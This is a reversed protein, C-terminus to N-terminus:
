WQKEMYMDARRYESPLDKPMLVFGNKEYLKRAAQLCSATELCLKKVGLANARQQSHDLLAQGLGKQQYHSAVALKSLKIMKNSPPELVLSGLLNGRESIALWIEGGSSIVQQPNNLLQHDAVEIQGSFYRQLWDMNLECFADQYADDYPVLQYGEMRELVKVAFSGQHVQQELQELAQMFHESQQQCVQELLGKMEQLIPELQIMIQEAQPSLKLVFRRQDQKDMDKLLLGEKLMKSTQKSIAPHSLQLGHALEMVSMAGSTQLSRLIPFYSSSVPLQQDQYISQVEQFLYDSLRKLRSGLSLVGFEEM